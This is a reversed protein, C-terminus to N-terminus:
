LWQKKKKSAKWSYLGYNSRRIEYWADPLHRRKGRTYKKHPINWRREQTTRIGRFLVFHGRKTVGPVPDYRFRVPIYHIRYSYLDKFIIKRIYFTDKHRM